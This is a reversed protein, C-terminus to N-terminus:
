IVKYATALAFSASTTVISSPAAQANEIFLQGSGATPQGGSFQAGLGCRVNNGAADVPSSVKIYHFTDIPSSIATAGLTVTESATGARPITVDGTVELSDGVQM